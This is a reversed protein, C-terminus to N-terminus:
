FVDGSRCCQMIRIKHKNKIKRNLLNRPIVKTQM